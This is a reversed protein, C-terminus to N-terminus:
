HIHQQAAGMRVAIIRNVSMRCLRLYAVLTDYCTFFFIACARGTHSCVESGWLGYASLIIGVGLLLNDSLQRGSPQGRTPM